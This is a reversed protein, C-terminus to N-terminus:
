NLYMKNSDFKNPNVISERFFCEFMVSDLCSSNISSHCLIISSIKQNWFFFKVCVSSYPVYWVPYSSHIYGLFLYITFAFWLLSCLFWSVSSLLTYFLKVLPWNKKAISCQLSASLCEFLFRARKVCFLKRQSFFFVSQLLDIHIRSLIKFFCQLFIDLSWREIVLTSNQRSNAPPDGLCTALRQNCFHFVRACLYCTM